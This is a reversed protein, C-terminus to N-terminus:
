RKKRMSKRKDTGQPLDTTKEQYETKKEGIFSVAVIYSFYQQFNLLCSQFSWLPSFVQRGQSMELETAQCCIQNPLCHLTIKRLFFLELLL